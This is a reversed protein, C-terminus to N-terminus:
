SSYRDSQHYSVFANKLTIPVVPDM